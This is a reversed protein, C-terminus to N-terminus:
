ISGCLPTTNADVDIDEAILMHTFECCIERNILNLIAEKTYPFFCSLLTPPAVRKGSQRYKRDYCCCEKVVGNGDKYYELELYVSRHMKNKLRTRLRTQLGNYLGGDGSLILFHYKGSSCNKWRDIYEETTEKASSSTYEIGYFQKDLEKGIVTLLETMPFRVSRLKRPRVSGSRDGARGQSRDLYFCELITCLEKNVTLQLFLLRGHRNKFITRYVNSHGARELRLISKKM